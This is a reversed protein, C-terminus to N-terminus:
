QPDHQTSNQRFFLYQAGTALVASLALLLVWAWLGM